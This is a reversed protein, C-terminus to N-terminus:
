EMNSMHMSDICYRSRYGIKMEQGHRLPRTEASGSQIRLDIAESHLPMNRMKHMYVAILRRITGSWTVDVLCLGTSFSYVGYLDVGM